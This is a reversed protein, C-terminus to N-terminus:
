WIPVMVLLGVQSNSYLESLSKVMQPMWFLMSYLAILLTFYIAALYWVRPNAFASWASHGHATEPKAQEERALEQHLRAQRIEETAAEVALQATHAKEHSRREQEAM